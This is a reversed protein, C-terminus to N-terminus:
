KEREQAAFAMSISLPQNELWLIDVWAKEAGRHLVSTSFLLVSEGGALIPHGLGPLKQFCLAGVVTPELGKVEASPQRSHCATGKSM